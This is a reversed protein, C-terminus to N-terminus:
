LNPRTDMHRLTRAYDETTVATQGLFPQDTVFVFGVLGGLVAMQCALLVSRFRSPSLTSSVFMIMATSFLVVLWYTSPLRLSTANLRTDRSEAVADFTRLMESYIEIQRGPAPNLALVGRSVPTFAQRTKESEDGRLMAPWDDDIISRTYARLHPRVIAATADGYRALLRDLRDIQSAEASVIADVKRFNSEAQVLTFALVLSTMTFMPVQIRLVLDMHDEGVALLPVRRVIRPMVTVLVALLTAALAELVVEPLSYFWGIM